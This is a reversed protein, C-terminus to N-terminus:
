AAGNQVLLASDDADDFLADLASADVKRDRDVMKLKQEKPWVDAQRRPDDRARPNM